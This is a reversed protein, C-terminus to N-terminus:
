IGGIICVVPPSSDPKKAKQREKRRAYEASRDGRASVGNRTHGRMGISMCVTSCYKRPKLRTKPKFVIGCVHCNMCPVARKSPGRNHTQEYPTAWRCNGPEYNGNNDIRDLTKGEPREGMDALFDKFNRWEKCIVIGRGGYNPYKPSISNCCRQIMAAWSRYSRSNSTTHGHKKKMFLSYYM